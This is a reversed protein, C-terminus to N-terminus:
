NFVESTVPLHAFENPDYAGQTVTTSVELESEDQDDDDRLEEESEDLENEEEENDGTSLNVTPINHGLAANFQGKDITQNLMESGELTDGRELPEPTTGDPDLETQHPNEEPNRPTFVEESDDVEISEDYPKNAM